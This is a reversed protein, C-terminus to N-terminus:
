QVKPLRLADVLGEFQKAAGEIYIRTNEAKAHGLYSQLKYAPVNASALAYGAAHRLAHPHAVHVDIGARKAAAKLQAAFAGTSMAGGREGVFVYEDSHTALYAKLARRDEPALPQNGGLGDKSRRINITGAKLGIDTRRLSVLESARLAHRYALAIMLADRMGNRNAKAAKILAAVQDATLHKHNDRGYAKDSRRGKPNRGVKLKKPLNEARVIALKAAM